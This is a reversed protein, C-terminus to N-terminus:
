RTGDANSKGRIYSAAKNLALFALSAVSGVALTAYARWSVEPNSSDDWIAVLSLVAGALVCFFCLSLCFKNVFRSFM